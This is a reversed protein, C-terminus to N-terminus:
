LPVLNWLMMLAGIRSADLPSLEGLGTEDNNGMKENNQWRRQNPFRKESSVFTDMTWLGKCKPPKLIRCEIKM